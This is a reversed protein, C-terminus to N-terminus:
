MQLIEIITITIEAPIAVSLVAGSVPIVRLKSSHSTEGANSRIDLYLEKWPDKVADAVAQMTAQGLTRQLDGFAALEKPATEM